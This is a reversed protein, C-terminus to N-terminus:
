AVQIKLTYRVGISHLLFDDTGLKGATPTVSITLSRAAAPVDGAAIVRTLLATTKATANGVLANTVGGCDTDADHLDGASIIYAAITITTADGLTAGSKSCLFELNIAAADDLDPPLEVQCLATGPTAHNNWRVCLAKSDAINLGFTTDAGDAFKGIPTADSKTLSTLPVRVVSNTTAADVQLADIDTQATDLDAAEAAAIVIQAVVTPGMLTYCKSNRLESCYGAIGRSGSDSDIAVTQNDYVYVVQGPKPATGTYAWGFVGHEIEADIAANAGGEPATVRNDFTASFKGVANFGDAAAGEVAYGGANVCAITGRLALETTAMGITSRAPVLGAFETNRPSATAAM